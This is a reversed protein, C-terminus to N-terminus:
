LSSREMLISTAVDSFYNCRNGDDYAPHRKVSPRIAAQIEKETMVGRFKGNDAVVVAVDAHKEKMKRAVKDISDSRHITVTGKHMQGQTIM